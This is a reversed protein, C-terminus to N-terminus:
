FTYVKLMNYKTRYGALIWILIWGTWTWNYQEERQEGRWGTANLECCNVQLRAGAIRQINKRAVFYASGEYCVTRGYFCSIRCIIRVIEAHVTLVAEAEKEWSWGALLNNVGFVQHKGGVVHCSAHERSLCTTQGKLQMCADQAVLACVRM